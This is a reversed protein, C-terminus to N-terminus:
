NFYRGRDNISSAKIKRLSATKGKEEKWNKFESGRICYAQFYSEDNFDPDKGWDGGIVFKFLEKLEVEVFSSGYQINM